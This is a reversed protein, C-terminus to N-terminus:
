VPLELSFTTTAPSYFVATYPSAILTIPGFYVASPKGSNNGSPFQLRIETYGNLSAISTFLIGNTLLEIWFEPFASATALDELVYPQGSLNSVYPNGGTARGSEFRVLSGLAVQKAKNLNIDTGTATLAYQVPQNVTSTSHRLTILVENFDLLPSAIQTSSLLTVNAVNTTPADVKPVLVIDSYWKSSLYDQINSVDTPPVYQDRNIFLIEGILLSSTKEMNGFLDFLHDIVTGAYEVPVPGAYLMKNIFIQMNGAQYDIELFTTNTGNLVQQSTTSIYPGSDLAKQSFVVPRDTVTSLGLVVGMLTNFPANSTPLSRLFNLGVLDDSNFVPNLNRLVVFLHFVSGLLISKTFKMRNPNVVVPAPTLVPASTVTNYPATNPVVSHLVPLDGPAFVPNVVFLQLYPDLVLSNTINTHGLTPPATYVGPPISGHDVVRLASLGNISGPQISFVESSSTIPIVHNSKGSKDKWKSLSSISQVISKNDTADFWFELGEVSSPSWRPSISEPPETATGDSGRQSLPINTAGREGTHRIVYVLRVIYGPLEYDTAVASQGVDVDIRTEWRQAAQVTAAKVSFATINDLPEQLLYPLNSGFDPLFIPGAEGVHTRFINFLSQEIAAKDFLLDAAGSQGFNRNLDMYQASSKLDSIAIDNAM